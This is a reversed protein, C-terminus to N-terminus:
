HDDHEGEDHIPLTSWIALGWLVFIGVIAYAM